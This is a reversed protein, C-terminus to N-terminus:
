RLAYTITVNDTIDESGPQIAPTSVAASMGMAVNATRYVPYPVPVMSNESMSVVGGLSVGAESAMEQAKQEAKAMADARAIAVFTDQYNFTFNIGSVQNVGLPALGGLVAAVNNLDHIKVQVSQTLTYGGIGTQNGNKDYQYNPQLDYSITKIDSTAISQSALFQMVSNMKTNNNLSLTQPDQGQTVVSFSLEALDPTATTKGEATVTLTRAPTLSGAYRVLSPAVVGMVVIILGAVLADILVWFWFKSENM